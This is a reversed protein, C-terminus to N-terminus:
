RAGKCSAAPEVYQDEQLTIGNAIWNAVGLGTNDQTEGAMLRGQVERRTPVTLPRSAMQSRPLPNEDASNPAGKGIRSRLVDMAAINGNLREAQAKELEAEWTVLSQPDTADKLLGVAEEAERCEVVAREYAKPLSEV